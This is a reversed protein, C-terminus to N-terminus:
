SNGGIELTRQALTRATNMAAVNAEYARTASMLNVMETATDVGSYAVFGSANASPHGPDYVMRPSAVTPVVQYRVEALGQDVSNAFASQAVVRLPQFGSGDANLATNANALNVSSAEVRARELNMGSASIAFIQSYDM